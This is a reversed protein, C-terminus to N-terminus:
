SAIEKFEKAPEETVPAEDLYGENSFRIGHDLIFEGYLKVAGNPLLFAFTNHKQTHTLSSVFPLSAFYDLLLDVNKSFQRDEGRWCPLFIREFFNLSDSKSDLGEFFPLIGNHCFTLGEPSEWGHVNSLTIPSGSAKRAHLLLEDDEAAKEYADLIPQKELARIKKLSKTGDPEVHIVALFNGHPNRRICNDLERKRFNRKLGYAIICM